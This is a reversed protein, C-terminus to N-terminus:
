RTSNRHGMTAPRPDDPPSCRDRCESRQPGDLRAPRRARDAVPRGRDAIRGAGPQGARTQVDTRATLSADTFEISPTTRLLTELGILLRPDPPGLDPTSLVRSRRLRPEDDAQDVLMETVTTVAWEISTSSALIDDTADGTLDESLPDVVILPLTGGDPLVAEVFLDTSPFRRTSPPGRLATRVDRPLPLRPQAAGASRSRETAETAM